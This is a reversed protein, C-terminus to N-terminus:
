RRKTVLASQFGKLPEDYIGEDLDPDSEFWALSGVPVDARGQSAYHERARPDRLCRLLQGHMDVMRDRRVLGKEISLVRFYQFIAGWGHRGVLEPGYPLKLHGTFWRAHVPVERGRLVHDIEDRQYRRLGIEALEDGDELSSPDCVEDLILDGDRIAWVGVYGRYCHTGEERGLITTKARDCLVALPDSMMQRRQGDILICETIQRTM